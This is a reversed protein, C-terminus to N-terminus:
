YSEPGCLTLPPYHATNEEEDDDGIGKTNNIKSFKRKGNQL